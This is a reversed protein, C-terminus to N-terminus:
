EWFGCWLASWLLDWIAAGCVAGSLPEVSARYLRALSREVPRRVTFVIHVIEVYVISLWLAELACLCVLPEILLLCCVPLWYYLYLWLAISGIFVVPYGPLELYRGCLLISLICLLPLLSWLSIFVM